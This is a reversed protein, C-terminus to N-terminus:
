EAIRQYDEPTNINEITLRDEVAVYAIHEQCGHQVERANSEPAARLLAAIMDRGAVWPHGHRGGCEPVVAWVRAESEMFAQRLARLTAAEVPPRDVLTVFAADRGRNMVEQLGVRLSSFQGQGPAPNVVLTAGAGDVVPRLREANEGAVVLVFDTVPKLSEIAAELFTCGRWALLAKDTGMRKSEGAALIVGAFSPARVMRVVNGAVGPAPM